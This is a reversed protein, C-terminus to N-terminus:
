TLPLLPHEIQICRESIYHHIVNQCLKKKVKIHASKALGASFEGSSTPLQTDVSLAGVNALVDINVMHIIQVCM